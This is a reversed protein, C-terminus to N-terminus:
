SNAAQKMSRGSEACEKHWFKDPLDAFPRDPANATRKRIPRTWPAVSAKLRLGSERAERGNMPDVKFPLLPDLDGKPWATPKRSTELRPRPDAGRRRSAGAPPACGPPTQAMAADGRMEARACPNLAIVCNSPSTKLANSPCAHLPYSRDMLSGLERERMSYPHRSASRSAQPWAATENHNDATHHDTAPSATAKSARRNTM